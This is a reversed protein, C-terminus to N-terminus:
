AFFYQSEYVDTIDLNGRAPLEPLEAHAEVPLTAKVGELFEKLVDHQEYMQVFCARLDRALIETRGAHTGYSDHIMMWATVGHGASRNVTAVLASADLSHVFNPAVSTVQRSKALKDTPEDLRSYVLAGLFRTKVQRTKTERYDQFVTLGSPTVWTLKQGYKTAVRTVQQLWSMAARAAIVTDGISEWILKALMPVPKLEDGTVPAGFPDEAGAAVRERYADRTYDLCSRFTGGYPLVMVQRKVMKRDIGFRYWGDYVWADPSDKAALTCLKKMTLEAVRGYIDQPKPGPVLNVAAGGVEDRLMASFHQIGNCSGDLSIALHSVFATPDTMSMAQSWEICWALFQWPKDAETWWRSAFPDTASLHANRTNQCAWEYRDEFSVKDNGFLNAGHIGLWKLGHLGLPVGESFQLLGRVHDPGQPNLTTGTSYIRGRFDMRYAFYFADMASYDQAINLARVFEFRLSRQEANHDHIARVKRRWQKRIDSGKEAADVEPPPTPIPQDEREPLGPFPLNEKWVHDMVALVRANIQWPTNQLKNLADYVQTPPRARLADLQGEFARTVVRQRFSLVDHFGGDDVTTWDKPPVALPLYVPRTLGFAEHYRESWEMVKPLLELRQSEKKGDRRKVIQIVGTAEVVFGLLTTGVILRTPGDWPEKIVGAWQNAKRMAMAQRDAGLGRARANRMVTRYLAGAKEEFKDALIEMALSNGISLASYKFSDRNSASSLAQRVAVYMAMAPDIDKLIVAARQRYNANKAVLAEARWEEFMKIAPALAKKMLIVGAPTEAWSGRETAKAIQQRSRRKGLDVMRQELAANLDNM